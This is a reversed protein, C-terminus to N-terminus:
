KLADYINLHGFQLVNYSIYTTLVKAPKLSLFHTVQIVHGCQRGTGDGRDEEELSCIVEPGDWRPATGPRLVM